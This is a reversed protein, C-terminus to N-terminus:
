DGHPRPRKMRQLQALTRGNLPIEAEPVLTALNDAVRGAVKGAAGELSADKGQFVSPSVLAPVKQQPCLRCFRGSRKKLSALQRAKVLTEQHRLGATLLSCVQPCPVQM